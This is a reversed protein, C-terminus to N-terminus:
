TGNGLDRSACLPEVRCWTPLNGGARRQDGKKSKRKRCECVPELVPLSRGLLAVIEQQGRLQAGHTIEKQQAMGAVAALSYMVSVSHRVKTKASIPSAAAVTTTDLTGTCRPLQWEELSAPLEREARWMADVRSAGKGQAIMRTQRTIFWNWGNERRRYVAIMQFPAVTKEYSLSNRRGWGPPPEKKDEPKPGPQGSEDLQAACDFDTCRPCRKRGYPKTNTTLLRRGVGRPGAYPRATRWAARDGRLRVTQLQRRFYAPTEIIGLPDSIALRQKAIKKALGGKVRSQRQEQINLLEISFM